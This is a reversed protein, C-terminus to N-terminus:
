QSILVRKFKLRFIHTLFFVQTYQLKLIENEPIVTVKVKVFEPISNSKKNKNLNLCKLVHLMGSSCVLLFCIVLQNKTKAIGRKFINKV